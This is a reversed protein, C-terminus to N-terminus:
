DPARKVAIDRHSRTGHVKAIGLERLIISVRAKSYGMAEAIERLTCGILRLREIQSYAIRKPIGLQSPASM